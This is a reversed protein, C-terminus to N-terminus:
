SRSVEDHNEREYLEVMPVLYDDERGGCKPIMVTFDVWLFGQPNDLLEGGDYVLFENGRIAYVKSLFRGNWCPIIGDKYCNEHYRTVIVEFDCKLEAQKKTM